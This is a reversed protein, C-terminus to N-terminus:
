EMKYNKAIQSDLFMNRFLDGIDNRSRYSFEHRVVNITWLTEASSIKIEVLYKM